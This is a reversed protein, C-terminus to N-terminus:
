KRKIAVDLDCISPIQLNLLECYDTVNEYSEDDNWLTYDAINNRNFCFTQEDCNAAFVVGLETAKRFAEELDSVAKKQEDTLAVLLACGTHEIKTGDEKVETFKSNDLCEKRTPYGSYYTEGILVWRQNSKSFFDVEKANVKCEVPKGLDHDFQWYTIVGDNYRGNQGTVSDLAKLNLTNGMEYDAVTHFADNRDALFSGTSAKCLVRVETSDKGFVTSVGLFECEVLEGEHLAYGCCVDLYFVQKDM